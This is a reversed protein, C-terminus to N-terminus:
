TQSAEETARIENSAPGEEQGGERLLGLPSVGAREAILEIYDLSPNADPTMLHFYSSRALGLRAAFSRRSLGSALRLRELSTQFTRLLRDGQAAHAAKRRCPAAEVPGNAHM